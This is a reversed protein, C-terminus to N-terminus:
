WVAAQSHASQSGNVAPTSLTGDVEGMARRVMDENKDNEGSVILSPHTGDPGHFGDIWHAPRLDTSLSTSESAASDFKVSEREGPGSRM